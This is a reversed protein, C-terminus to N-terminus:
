QKVQSAHLTLIAVTAHAEKWVDGGWLLSVREKQMWLSVIETEYFADQFTQMTRLFVKVESRQM